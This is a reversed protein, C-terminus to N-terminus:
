KSYLKWKYEKSFKMTIAKNKDLFAEFIENFQRTNQLHPNKSIFDNLNIGKVLNFDISGTSASVSPEFKDVVWYSEPSEDIQLVSQGLSLIFEIIEKAEM